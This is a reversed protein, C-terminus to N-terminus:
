DERKEGTVLVWAIQSGRASRRHGAGVDEIKPHLLAACHEADALWADIVQHIQVYDAALLEHRPIGTYGARQLREFPTSGDAGEHGIYGHNIEDHAHRRAACRMQPMVEVALVPKGGAPAADEPADDPLPCEPGEARVRNIVEVLDDELLTSIEPWLEVSECLEEDGVDSPVIAEAPECGAAFTALAFAIATQRLSADVPSGM